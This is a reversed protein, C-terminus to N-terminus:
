NYCLICTHIYDDESGSSAFEEETTIIKDDKSKRAKGKAETQEQKDGCVRAWHGIKQCSHCRATKFQCYEAMHDTEGYQFYM